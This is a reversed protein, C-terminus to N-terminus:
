KTLSARLCKKLLEPGEQKEGAAAAAALKLPIRGQPDTEYHLRRLTGEPVEFIKSAQKQQDWQYYESTM